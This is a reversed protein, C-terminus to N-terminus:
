EACYRANCAGFDDLRYLFFAGCNVVEINFSGGACAMGGFALCVDRTVIGEETTPHAGNLWGPADTSCSNDAPPSEPLQTGAPERMRYWGAGLWQVDQVASPDDCYTTLGAQASVNRNALDLTRYPELCQPDLQTLLLQVLDARRALYDSVGTGTVGDEGSLLTTLLGSQEALLAELDASELSDVCTAGHKAAKTGAKDWSKRFKDDCKGYSPTTGKQIASAQAKQRCAAYAGAAKNKAIECAEEPTAATVAAASLLFGLAILVIRQM